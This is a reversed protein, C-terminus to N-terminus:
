EIWRVCGHTTCAAHMHGNYGAVSYRLTGGCESPCPLSGTGGHGKGLGAQRSHAHAEKICKATLEQRKDWETAEAEVEERTPFKATECQVPSQSDGTCCIHAAWGPGSGFLGKYSIGAKCKDNFIGNFYRCTTMLRNLYRDASNDTMKTM